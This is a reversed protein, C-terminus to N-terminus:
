PRKRSGHKDREVMTHGGLARYHAAEAIASDEDDLVYNDQLPLVRRALHLNSLDVDAEWVAREDPTLGPDIPHNRRLDLYLHEHM